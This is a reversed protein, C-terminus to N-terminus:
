GTASEATVLITRAVRSAHTFFAMKLDDNRAARAAMREGYQRPVLATFATFRQATADAATSVAAASEVTADAAGVGCGAGWDVRM